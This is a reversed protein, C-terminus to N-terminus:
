GREPVGRSSGCTYSSEWFALEHRSSELFAARLRDRNEPTVHEDVVERCWSALEAFEDSAYLDIWHAYQEVPPRPREALARGLESYGWMCPLLAAALEAFDPRSHLFEVYAHTATDPEAAPADGHLELERETAAVLEAFRCALEATPALERARDLVRAYERLFFTDQAAFFAYRAPDLTGAALEQLFPHELQARWLADAERRLADTFREAV